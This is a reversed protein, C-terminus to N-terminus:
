NDNEIICYDMRIPRGCAPCLRGNYEDAVGVYSEKVSILKSLYNFQGNCSIRAHHSGNTGPRYIWRCYKDDM